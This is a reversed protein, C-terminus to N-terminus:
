VTRVFNASPTLGRRMCVHCARVSGRACGGALVPSAPSATAPGARLWRSRARDPSRPDLSWVATLVFPMLRRVLYPTMTAAPRIAAPQVAPECDLEPEPEPEPEPLLAAPLLESVMELSLPWSQLQPNLGSLGEKACSDTPKM